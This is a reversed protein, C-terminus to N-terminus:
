CNRGITSELRFNCLLYVLYFVLYGNLQSKGGSFAVLHDVPKNTLMIVYENRWNLLLM